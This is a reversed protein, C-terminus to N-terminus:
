VVIHKHVIYAKTKVRTATHVVKLPSGPPWLMCLSTRNRQLLQARGTAPSLSTNSSCSIAPTVYTANDSHVPLGSMPRVGDNASLPM